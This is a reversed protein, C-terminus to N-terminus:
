FMNALAMDCVYVVAYSDYDTDVVRYNGGLLGFAVYLLGLNFSSIDGTGIANRAVIENSSGPWGSWSNNDVKIQTASNLSYNATVCQLDNDGYPIDKSRRFEHWLGLYKEAEFDKQLTGSKNPCQFSIFTRFTLYAVLIVSTLIAWAMVWNKQTSTYAM